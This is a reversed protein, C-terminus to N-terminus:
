YDGLAPSAIRFSSERTPELLRMAAGRAHLCHAPLRELEEVGALTKRELDSRLHVAGPASGLWPALSAALTTKGTGSLGGVVVLKPAAPAAYNLAASLYRGARELDLERGQGGEQAARDTIVLARIAARLALFLPLAALGNLDLSERSCYFYRNLVVNAAPRQGQFDLDM